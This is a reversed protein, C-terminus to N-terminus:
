KVIVRLNQEICLQGILHYAFTGRRQHDQTMHSLNIGTHDTLRRKSQQLFSTDRHSITLTHLMDDIPCTSVPTRYLLETRRDRCGFLTQRQNLLKHCTHSM